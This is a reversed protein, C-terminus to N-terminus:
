NSVVEVYTTASKPIPAYEDYMKGSNTLVYSRVWVYYKVGLTLDTLTTRTTKIDKVKQAFLFVPSDGIFVEYGSVNIQSNWAVDISKAYPVLSVIPNRIPKSIILLVTSFRGTFTEASGAMIARASFYYMRSDIIPITCSSVETTCILDKVRDGTKSAYVQYGTAGVIDTWTLYVNTGIFGLSSLEPIGLDGTKTSVINSDDLYIKNGELEKYPRIKYYAISLPMLTTDKYNLDITSNLLVYENSQHNLAYVEYGTVDPVAEWELVAYGAGVESIDILAGKSHNDTCSVNCLLIIIVIARILGIKARQM